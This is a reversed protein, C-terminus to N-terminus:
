NLTDDFCVPVHGKYRQYKERKQDRWFTLDDKYSALRRRYAYKDKASMEIGNEKGTKRANRLKRRGANITATGGDAKPGIRRIRVIKARM